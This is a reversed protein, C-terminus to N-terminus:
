KGVKRPKPPKIRDLGNGLLGAAENGLRSNQGDDRLMLIMENLWQNANYGIVEGASPRLASLETQLKIKEASAIKLEDITKGLQKAALEHKSSLEQIEGSLAKIFSAMEDAGGALRNFVDLFSGVIPSVTGYPYRVLHDVESWGEEFITRVQIEVLLRERSPSSEIVYHVSRYGASTKKVKCGRQEFKAIFDPNDGERVKAEPSEALSWQSAIFDHVPAWDAKFLHLVRIGVLDTVLSRYSDKSFVLDPNDISKRIIKEILHEPEKLRAKISHVGAAAGLQERVYNLTPQLQPRKIVYDSFIDSLVDWGLRSQSFKEASISYKKLFEAQPGLQGKFTIMEGGVDICDDM